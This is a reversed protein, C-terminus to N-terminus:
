FLLGFDERPEGLFCNKPDMKPARTFISNTCFSVGVFSSIHNTRGTTQYACNLLLVVLEVFAKLRTCQWM